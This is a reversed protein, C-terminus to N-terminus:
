SEQNNPDSDTSIKNKVHDFLMEVQKKALEIEDSGMNRDITLSFKDTNLVFDEGKIKRTSDLSSRANKQGKLSKVSKDNKGTSEGQIKANAIEKSLLDIESFWTLLANAGVKSTKAMVSISDGSIKANTKILKLLKEKTISDGENEILIKIDNLHSQSIIALSFKKIDENNGLSLARALDIGTKTLKFSANDGEIINVSNLFGLNSSLFNRALDAAPLISEITLTSKDGDKRLILQIIKSLKGFPIGYPIKWRSEEITETM